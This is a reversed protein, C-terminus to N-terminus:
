LALRLLTPLGLLIFLSGALTCVALLVSWRSM